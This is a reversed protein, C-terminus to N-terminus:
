IATVVMAMSHGYNVYHLVEPRMVTETHQIMDAKLQTTMISDFAKFFHRACFQKSHGATALGKAIKIDSHGARFAKISFSM